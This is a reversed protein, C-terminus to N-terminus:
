ECVPEAGPELGALYESVLDQEEQTMDMGKQVMRAVTKDWYARDEGLNICTIQSSHCSVCKGTFLAQGKPQAKGQCALLGLLCCAGALAPLCRMTM